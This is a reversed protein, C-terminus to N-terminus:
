ICACAKLETIVSGTRTDTEGLQPADLEDLLIAARLAQSDAEEASRCAAVCHRAPQTGCPKIWLQSSQMGTIHSLGPRGPQTRRAPAQLSCALLPWHEETPPQAALASMDAASMGSRCRLTPMNSEPFLQKRPPHPRHASRSSDSVIMTVRAQAAAVRRLDGPLAPSGQTWVCVEPARLKTHGQHGEQGSHRIIRGQLPVLTMATIHEGEQGETIHCPM